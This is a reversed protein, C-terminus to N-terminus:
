AVQAWKLFDNSFKSFNWGLPVVLCFTNYRKYRRWFIMLRIARKWSKFVNWIRWFIPKLKGLIKKYEFKTRVNVPLCRCMKSCPFIHLLFFSINEWNKRLSPNCVNCEAPRFLPFTQGVKGKKLSFVFICLRIWFGTLCRLQLM